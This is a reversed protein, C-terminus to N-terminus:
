LLKLTTLDLALCHARLAVSTFPFLGDVAASRDPPPSQCGAFANPKVEGAEVMKELWTVLDSTTLGEKLTHSRKRATALDAEFALYDLLTSPLAALHLHALRLVDFWHPQQFLALVRHVRRRLESRLLLTPWLIRGVYIGLNGERM